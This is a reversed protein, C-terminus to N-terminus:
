IENVPRPKEKYDPESINHQEMYNQKAKRLEGLLDISDKELEGSLDIINEALRKSKNDVEDLLKDGYKQYFKKDKEDIRKRMDIFKEKDMLLKDIVWKMADEQFDTIQIESQKLLERHDNKFHQTFIKKVLDEFETRFISIKETYYKIKEEIDAHEKLFSMSFRKFDDSDNMIDLRFRLRIEKFTNESDIAIVNTAISNSATPAPMDRFDWKYRRENFITKNMKINQMLPEIFYRIMGKVKDRERDKIIIDLQRRNQKLISRTLWVYAATIIAIILTVISLILDGLEIRNVIEVRNVIEILYDIMSIVFEM